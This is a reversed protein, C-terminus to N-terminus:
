SKPCVAGTEIWAAILKGFEEQTGPVPTRKGGPNWGWGVLPDHAMHEQIQALTKGGNRKTDKIQECIQGLTRQQWAQTIPALLWGPNGPVGSAEFNEVQHCTNCRMAVVGFGGDGRSVPPSHRHMDDGQTPTDSAPHCNLCRPHTIVRGAETFLARSREASDKISAFSETSRLSANDAATSFGAFTLGCAVALSKLLRHRNM